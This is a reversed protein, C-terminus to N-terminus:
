EFDMVSQSEKALCLVYEALTKEATGLSNELHEMIRDVAVLDKIRNMLDFM